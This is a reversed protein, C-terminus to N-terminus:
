LMATGDLWELAEGVVPFSGFVLVVEDAERQALATRLAEVVTAMLCARSREEPLLRDFIAQASMARPEDVSTLYWYRVNKQLIAIMSDVEKDAYVGFVARVKSIGRLSLQAVLHEVAHPNHAVDLYILTEEFQRLTMRGKLELRNLDTVADTKPPTVLAVTQLAAALSAKPLRSQGSVTQSYRQCERVWFCEDDGYDFTDKIQLLTADLDSAIAIVSEPPESDALVVPINKRIIGAKERGIAERTSGLFDQHDLAIPLIVAIDPDVINMADLRGGLGVELIALDLNANTFLRLATLCSFEFYSLSIDERAVDIIELSEVIENDSVEQGRIRFRENYRHLHPSTTLGVSLGSADALAAIAECCSGKGNTGAVLVVTNAPQLVKLREAVTAVRDLTLDWALPHLGSIYDLWHDLSRPM